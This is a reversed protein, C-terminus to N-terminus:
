AFDNDSSAQGTGTVTEPPQYHSQLASILPGPIATPRRTSPDVCVQTFTAKFAIEGDQRTAVLLCTFSTRGMSSVSVAITIEEDYRLPALFDIGLNRAPPLIGLSFLSRPAPAGLVDAQFEM